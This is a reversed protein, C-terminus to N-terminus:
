LRKEFLLMAGSWPRRFAAARFARWQREPAAFGIRSKRQRAAEARLARLLERLPRGAGALYRLRLREDHPEIIAAATPRGPPGVVVCSGQRVARALDHSSLRRRVFEEHLLGDSARNLRRLAALETLTARRPLAGRAARARWMTYRDTRRFRFRRMLKHIPVNDFSTDLRALRAGLRTARALRHELLAAAVGRKRFRPHVRLAHLWAEHDGLLTLKAVGAPVGGLLALWLGGRRDRVWTDFIGPLYDEGGWIHRCIENVARRDTPRARRIQLETM